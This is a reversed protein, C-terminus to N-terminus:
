FLPIAMNHIIFPRQFCYQGTRAVSAFDASIDHLLHWFFIPNDCDGIWIFIVSLVHLALMIRRIITDKFAPLLQQRLRLKRVNSHDSCLVPQM